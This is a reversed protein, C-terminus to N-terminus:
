KDPADQAATSLALRRKAVEAELEAIRALARTHRAYISQASRAEQKEQVKAMRRRENEPEHHTCWGDIKPKRSCQHFGVGRGEDHVSAKCRTPDVKEYSWHPMWVTAM